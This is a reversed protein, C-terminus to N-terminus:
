EATGPQANNNVVVIEDVVGTAAFGEIVSRISDKEAYTMLIVSVTRGKWM